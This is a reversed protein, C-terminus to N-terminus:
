AGFKRDVLFAVPERRHGERGIKRAAFRAYKVRTQRRPFEHEIDAHSRESFARHRPRLRKSYELYM